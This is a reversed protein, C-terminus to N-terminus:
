FNFIGEWKEGDRTYYIGPYYPSRAETDIVYYNIGNNIRNLLYLQYLWSM